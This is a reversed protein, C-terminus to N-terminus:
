LEVTRNTWPVMAWCGILWNMTIMKRQCMMWLTHGEKTSAVREDCEPLQWSMTILWSFVNWPMLLLDAMSPALTATLWEKNGKSCLHFLYFKCSHTCQLDFNKKCKRFTAEPQSLRQYITSWSNNIQNIKEVQCASLWLCINLNDSLLIFKSNGLPCGNTDLGTNTNPNAECKCHLLSQFQETSIPM